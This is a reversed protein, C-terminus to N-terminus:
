RKTATMCFWKPALLALLETAGIGSIGTGAVLVTKNKLDM